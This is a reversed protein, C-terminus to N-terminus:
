AQLAEASIQDNSLCGGEAAFSALGAESVHTTLLNMLM